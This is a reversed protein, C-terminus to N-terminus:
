WQMHPQIQFPEITRKRVPEAVAGGGGAHPLDDAIDKVSELRSTNLLHDILDAGSHQCLNRRDDVDMEFRIVPGPIRDDLAALFQANVRIGPRRIAAQAQPQSPLTALSEVCTSSVDRPVGAGLTVM